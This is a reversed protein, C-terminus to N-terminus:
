PLPLRCQTVERRSTRTIRAGRDLFWRGDVRRVPWSARFREEITTERQADGRCATLDFTVRGGARRLGSVTVQGTDRYGRRWRTYPGVQRKAASTLLAYAQRFEGLAIHRYHIRVARTPSSEGAAVATGGPMTTALLLCTVILTRSM